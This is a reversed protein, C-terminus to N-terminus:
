YWIKRLGMVDLNVDFAVQLFAVVQNRTPKQYLGSEKTSGLHSTTYLDPSYGADEKGEYVLWATESFPDCYVTHITKADLGISDGKELQTTTEHKVWASGLHAFGIEGDSIASRYRYSRVRFAGQAQETALTVNWNYLVGRICHLTLNCHHPHFGISMGNAYFLPGNKYLEHGYQAYYLRITQGPSELLMFSHLGKAHCHLLSREVIQESNSYWLHEILQKM